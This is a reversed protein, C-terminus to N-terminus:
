SNCSQVFTYDIDALQRLPQHLSASKAAKEMTSPILFAKSIDVPLKVTTYAVQVQHDADTAVDPYLM